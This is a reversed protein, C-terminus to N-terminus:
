ITERAVIEQIEVPYTTLSISVFILLTEGIFHQDNESSQQQM